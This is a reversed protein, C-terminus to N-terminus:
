RTMVKQETMGLLSEIHESLSGPQCATLNPRQDWGESTLSRQEDSTVLALVPWAAESTYADLVTRHDEVELDLEVVAADIGDTLPCCDGELLPCGQARVPGLCVVPRIGLSELELRQDELIEADPNVVLVTKGRLTM